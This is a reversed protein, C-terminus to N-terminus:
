VLADHLLTNIIDAVSKEPAASASQGAWLSLFAAVNNKRAWDRMPGTLVNQVPYSPINLGSGDVARSFANPLGRAWRGSFSRTLVTDEARSRMVAEKYAPPAASEHSALFLSGVQVGHAGMALAANMTARSCIGGAALVPRETIALVQPLLAMLGVQPLEDMDLFSGRHGGAEIGQVCIIDTQKESLLAAEAVSTATGILVVGKEQLMQIEDDSPMGFTFSVAPVEEELLLDLLERYTHFPIEEQTKVSYGIGNERCFRLLFQQMADFELDPIHGPHEYVFLNVAFPKSSLEKTRRILARTQDASLGGAALSGLIGANSAAAAMEPTSVGLMPAQVVPHTIRLMETLRDTRDM